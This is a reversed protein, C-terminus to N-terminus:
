SIRELKQSGGGSFGEAYGAYHIVQDNGIYVGHHTYHQGRDLLAKHVFLHDGLQM